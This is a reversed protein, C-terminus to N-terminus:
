VIDFSHWPDQLNFITILYIYNMCILNENETFANQHTDRWRFTALSAGEDEGWTLPSDEICYYLVPVLM